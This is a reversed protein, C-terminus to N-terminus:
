VVEPLVASAPDVAAEVVLVPRRQDVLRPEGVQLPHYRVPCPAAELHAPVEVVAVATLTGGELVSREDVQGHPLGDLGHYRHVKGASTVCLNCYRAM